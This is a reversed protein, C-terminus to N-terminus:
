IWRTMRHRMVLKAISIVLRLHSLVLMQAAQLDGHDRLSIALDREEQASLIPANDAAKLFAEIDGLPGIIAPVPPAKYPALARSGKSKKDDNDTMTM